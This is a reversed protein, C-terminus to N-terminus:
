EVGKNEWESRPGLSDSFISLISQHLQPTHVSRQTNEKSDIEQAVLEAVRRRILYEDEYSKPARYHEAETSYRSVDSNSRRFWYWRRDICFQDSSFAEGTASGPIEKPRHNVSVLLRSSSDIVADRNLLGDEASRALIEGCLVKFLGDENYYSLTSSEGPIMYKIMKTIHERSISRVHDSDERMGANLLKGTINNIVNSIIRSMGTSSKDAAIKTISESIVRSDLVDVMSFGAGVEQYFGGIKEGSLESYLGSGYRLVPNMYDMPMTVHSIRLNTSSAGSRNFSHSVGEVFGFYPLQTDVIYTSFGALIHPDFECSVSANRSSYKEEIHNWDAYKEYFEKVAEDGEADKSRIMHSPVKSYSGLAGMLAENNGYSRDNDFAVDLYTSDSVNLGSIESFVHSPACYMETRFSQINFSTPLMDVIFASRTLEEGIGMSVNSNLIIDPTIVNCAPPTLFSSSPVVASRIMNGLNSEGGAGKTPVGFDNFRFFFKNFLGVMFSWIPKSGNMEGGAIQNLIANWFIKSRYKDFIVDSEEIDLSQIQSSYDSLREHSDISTAESSYKGRFGAPSDIYKKIMKLSSSVFPQDRDSLIDRIHGNVFLSQVEFGPIKFNSEGASSMFVAPGLGGPQIADIESYRRFRELMSIPSRASINCSRNESSSSFSIATVDGDFLLYEIGNEEFTITLISRPRIQSAVTTFPITISASAPANTASFVGGNIFPIEVGELYARFKRYKEGATAM